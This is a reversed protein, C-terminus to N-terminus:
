ANDSLYGHSRRSSFYEISIQKRYNGIARGKDDSKIKVKNLVVGLIKCDAVELQDKVKLAFKYSVEEAAVVLIVGDCQRSIIASDIVSGLPPTDIIIIDYEERQTAIM